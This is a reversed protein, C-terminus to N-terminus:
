FSLSQSASGTGLAQSQSNISKSVFGALKALNASTADGADIYQDFKAENAFRNLLKQIGLEKTNVGILVSIISELQEQQRMGSIKAAISAPKADRSQNDAGDTIVYVAANTDFEQDYLLKAYQETAGIAEFSADFLSTAGQPQFVALGQTDIDRLTKFGFVETLDTNFSVLRVLLNDARPSKRCAEIIAKVCALLETAFDVVSSSTDVVITVLTYETAGLADPRVASFRFNSAGPLAISQMSNNNM